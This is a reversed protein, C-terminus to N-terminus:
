NIDDTLRHKGCHICQFLYGRHHGIKLLSTEYNERSLSMKKRLKEIDDELEDQLHKIEAWGVCGVFACHDGCHSLWQEQQWGCYGPTRQTLEITCREDDVPECSDPDQFIGDYKKAAEGSQICWPCIGEVEDICYISGKYCYERNQECVPCHTIVRM